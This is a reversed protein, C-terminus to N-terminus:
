LVYATLDSGTFEEYIADLQQKSTARVTVSISLYRGSRSSKESWGDAPSDPALRSVVDAVLQRLQERDEGMVKIPFDCPFEILTEASSTEDTM